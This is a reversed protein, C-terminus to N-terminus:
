DELLSQYLDLYERYRDNRNFYKVARERCLRRTEEKHDSLCLKKIGAVLGNIDGMEVVMGTNEDIAEPSGGFKPEYEKIVDLTRDKSGGDILLYEFDRYSQRLVSEITDRLTKESNYTATLISIKM